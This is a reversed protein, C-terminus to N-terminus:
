CAVSIVGASGSSGRIPIKGRALGSSFPFINGYAFFGSGRDSHFHLLLLLFDLKNRMPSAFATTVDYSFVYLPSKQHQATADVMM